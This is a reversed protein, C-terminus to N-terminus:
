LPLRKISNFHEEADSTSWIMLLEEIARRIGLKRPIILVGSSSQVEVFEAFHYPMTRWDHSVILRGESSAIALVEYDPLGSLGAQTATKFDIAPQRRIVGSVIDEDLDADAQFRVKM